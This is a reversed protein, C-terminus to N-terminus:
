ESKIARYMGKVFSLSARWGVWGLMVALAWCFVFNYGFFFASQMLGTM